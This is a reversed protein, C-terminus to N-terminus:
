YCVFESGEKSAIGRDLYASVPYFTSRSYGRLPTQVNALSITEGIVSRVGAAIVARDQGSFKAVM